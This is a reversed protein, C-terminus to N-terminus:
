LMCVDWYQWLEMGMIFFIPGEPLGEKRGTDKNMMIYSNSHQPTKKNKASGLSSSSNTSTNTSDRSQM